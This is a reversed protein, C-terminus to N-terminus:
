VLLCAPPSTHPGAPPTHVQKYVHILSPSLRSRCLPATLARQRQRTDPARAARTHPAPRAPRAARRAAEGTPCARPRRAVALASVRRRAARVVRVVSIAHRLDRTHPTPRQVSSRPARPAVPRSTPLRPVPRRTYVEGHHSRTSRAIVIVSHPLATSARWGLLACLRALLACQCYYSASFNYVLVCM